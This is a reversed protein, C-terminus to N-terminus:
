LFNNHRQKVIAIGLLKRVLECFKVAYGEIIKRLQDASADFM